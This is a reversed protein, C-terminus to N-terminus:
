NTAEGTSSRKGQDRRTPSPPKFDFGETDILIADEMQDLLNELAALIERADEAQASSTPVAQWANMMGRIRDEAWSQVNNTCGFYDGDIVGDSGWDPPTRSPAAYSPGTMYIFPMGPSGVLHSTDDKEWESSIGSSYVEVGVQSDGGIVSINGSSSSSIIRFYHGVDVSFKADAAEVNTGMGFVDIDLWTRMDLYVGLLTTDSNRKSLPESTSGTLGGAFGFGRDSGTHRALDGQFEGLSLPANTRAYGDTGSNFYLVLDSFIQGNGTMSADINMKPTFSVIGPESFGFNSLDTAFVSGPKTSGVINISAQGNIMLRGTLNMDVDFFGYAEEFSIEPAITGVMTVGFRIGNKVSGDLEISMFGDKGGCKASDDQSYLLQYFDEQELDLSYAAPQGNLRIPALEELWTKPDPSWFRKDFSENMGRKTIAKGLVIDNWYGLSDGYDIRVYVTGSDRKVLSYDYSIDMEYVVPNPSPARKRLNHDVTHNTSLRIDKVVGYTAFGCGEPLKVITGKAGGEHVAGCNSQPSDNMCIYRTTYISKGDRKETPECNGFAGIVTDSGSSSPSNQISAVHFNPVNTTPPLTPFINELPMKGSGCSDKFPGGNPAIAFGSGWSGIDSDSLCDTQTCHQGNQSAWSGAVSTSIVSNRTIGSIDKGLLGRLANFHMDDQDVSWVMVGGLGVSNAYEINQAFTEKDDYSVWQDRNAGYQFYKVASTKDWIVDPSQKELIDM